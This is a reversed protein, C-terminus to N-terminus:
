IEMCHLIKSIISDIPSSSDLCVASSAKYLARRKQYLAKLTDQTNDTVLPRDSDKIRAYCIDFSPDLQIVLSFNDAFLQTNRKVTMVQGGTSIVCNNKASLTKVALHEQERFFDEGKSSFIEPISMGCIKEVYEDTDFFDWNLKESLAKGVTTKGSGMFGCLVVRKIEM